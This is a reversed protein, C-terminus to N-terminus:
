QIHNLSYSPFTAYSDDRILPSNHQLHTWKHQTADGSRGPSGSHGPIGIYHSDAIVKTSKKNVLHILPICYVREFRGGGGILWEVIDIM